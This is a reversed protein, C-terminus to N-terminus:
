ELQGAMEIARAIDRSQSSKTGGVPKWDGLNGMTARRLRALIRAKAMSDKLREMWRQFVDTEVVEIM